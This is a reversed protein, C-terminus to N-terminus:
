TPIIPKVKLAKEINDVSTHVVALLNNYLSVEQLLVCTLPSFYGGSDKQLFSVSPSIFGFYYFNLIM